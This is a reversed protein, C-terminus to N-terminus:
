GMHSPSAAEQPTGPPDLAKQASILIFMYSFPTCYTKCDDRQESMWTHFNCAQRTKMDFQCSTLGTLTKIKIKKKNWYDHDLSKSFHLHVERARGVAPHYAFAACTDKSDRQTGFGKCFTCLYCSSQSNYINWLLKKDIYIKFFSLNLYKYLLPQLALHQKWIFLTNKRNKCCLLHYLFLYQQQIANTEMSQRQLHQLM